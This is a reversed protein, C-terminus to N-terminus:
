GGEAPRREFTREWFPRSLRLASRWQEQQEGTTGSVALEVSREWAEKFEGGAEREVALLDRLRVPPIPMLHRYGHVGAIVAILLELSARSPM